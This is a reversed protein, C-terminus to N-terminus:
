REFVDGIKLGLARFVADRFLHAAREFKITSRTGNATLRNPVVKLRPKAEIPIERTIPLSHQKEYTFRM